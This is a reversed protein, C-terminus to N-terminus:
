LFIKVKPPVKLKWLKSWVMSYIDVGFSGDCLFKYASRISFSGKQEPWWFLAGERSSRALPISLLQEAEEENFVARGVAENWM